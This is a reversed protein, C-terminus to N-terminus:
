WPSIWINIQDLAANLKLSLANEIEGEPAIDQLLPALAHQGEGKSKWITEQALYVQM